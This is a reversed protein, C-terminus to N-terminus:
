TPRRVAYWLKDGMHVITWEVEDGIEVPELAYAPLQFKGFKVIAVHYPTPFKKISVYVESQTLVVGRKPIDVLELANRCSPCIPRPPFLAIDCKSCYSGVLRGQHLWREIM